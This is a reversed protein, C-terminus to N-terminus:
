NGLISIAKKLIKLAEQTDRLERQLRANEQVIDKKETDLGHDAATFPGFRNFESKWRELTSRGAGLMQACEVTTMEPHDFLYQVADQKFENSFNKSKAM